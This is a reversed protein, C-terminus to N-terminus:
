VWKREEGFNCGFRGAAFQNAVHKDSANLGFFAINKQWNFYQFM